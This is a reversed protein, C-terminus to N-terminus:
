FVQDLALSLDFEKLNIKQSCSEEGDVVVQSQADGALPVLLTSPLDWLDSDVFSDYEQDNFKPPRTQRTLLFHQENSPNIIIVALNHTAM